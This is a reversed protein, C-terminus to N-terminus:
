SQALSMGTTILIKEEQVTTLLLNTVDKNCVLEGGDNRKDLQKVVVRV